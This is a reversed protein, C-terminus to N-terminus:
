EIERVKGDVSFETKLRKVLNEADSINTFEGVTVVNLQLNNVNKQTIQSTLGKQVFRNKLEQANQLNGFAGAQVTFKKESEPKKNYPKNEVVIMEDDQVFSRETNKLYPSDPYEKQLLVKLTEAKKYLGIAYFYSFSRFLAADAFKSNPFTSYVLEYLKQSEEGNETLVAQLFIVNPDNSNKKKLFELNQKAEDIKGQEIMKLQPIIDISQAFVQVSFLLIFTIILKKM